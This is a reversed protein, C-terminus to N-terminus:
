GENQQQQQMQIMDRISLAAACVRDVSRDCTDMSLGRIGLNREYWRLAEEQENLDQFAIDGLRQAAHANNPFNELVVQYRAYADDIDGTGYACAAFGILGSLQRPRLALTEAFQECAAEFNAFDLYVTALNLRAAINQRNHEVARRFLREARAHQGREHAVLGLENQIDSLQQNLRALREANRARVRAALEEDLEEYQEEDQLRESRVAIEDLAKDWLYVALQTDDQQKAISALVILAGVDNQSMQLLRRAYQRAQEHGDNEAHVAALNGLAEINNEDVALITEFAQIAQAPRGALAHAKGISLHLEPRAEVPWEREILDDMLALQREFSQIAEDYRGLDMYILGINELAEWFNEDLQITREFHGLAAAYDSPSRRLARIGDNFARLAEANVGIIEEFIPGEDVPEEEVVRQSGGCAILSSAVAAVLFPVVHRQMM